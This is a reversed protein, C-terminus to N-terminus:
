QKKSFPYKNRGETDDPMVGKLIMSKEAPLARGENFWNREVDYTVTTFQAILPCAFGIIAVLVM